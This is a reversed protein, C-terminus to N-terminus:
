HMKVNTSRDYDFGPNPVIGAKVVGWSATTSAVTPIIEAKIYRKGPNVKFPVILEPQVSQKTDAHSAILNYTSNDASDYVNVKVTDNVGFSSPTVVRVALGQRQGGYVIVPGVSETTTFSGTTRLMLEDDFAPM